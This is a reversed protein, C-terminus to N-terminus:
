KTRDYFVGYRARDADSRRTIIIGEANIIKYRKLEKGKNENYFKLYEDETVEDKEIRYEDNQFIFQNAINENTSFAVCIETGDDQKKYILYVIVEKDM